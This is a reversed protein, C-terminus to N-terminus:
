EEYDEYEEFEEDEDLYEERDLPKIVGKLRLVVYAAIAAIVVLCICIIAILALASNSGEEKKVPPETVVPETQVTPELETPAETSPETPAETSPETPQTTETVPPETETPETAKLDVVLRAGNTTASGGPGSIECLVEWGNLAYPINSLTLCETYNGSIELGAFAAPVGTLPYSMAGDPSLISWVYDTAHDARAVFQAMGGEEVTEGTPHKTIVPKM